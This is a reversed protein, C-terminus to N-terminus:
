RRNPHKPLHSRYQTLPPKKQTRLQHELSRPLAVVTTIKQHYYIPTARPTNPKELTALFWGREIKTQPEQLSPGTDQLQGHNLPYNIPMPFPSMLPIPPEAM